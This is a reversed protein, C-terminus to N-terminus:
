NGTVRRRVMQLYLPCSCEGHRFTHIIHDDGIPVGGKLAMIPPPLLSLIAYVCFSFCLYSILFLPLQAM